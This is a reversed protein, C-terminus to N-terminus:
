FLPGAAASVATIPGSDGVSDLAQDAKQMMARLERYLEDDNILKGLTGEGSNLRDSFQRFNAVTADIEEAIADDNLLQGLAGEGNEIKRFVEGADALTTQADLAAQKIEEVAAVVDNYASPDNILKGLTGEQDNLSATLDELNTLISDVKSRNETVLGDLNAFLSQMEEGGFSGFSDALSNLKEGLQGVQAIIANLDATEHTEIRDGEALYTEAGGFSISVYNQGLLSAMAITAVSDAPIRTEESIRLQALAEGDRLGTAEVSGIRVGAMRVDTGSTLTKLDSFVAELQYGSESRLRGDGIVAFVVYILALGCVFFLGVSTAQFGQKM